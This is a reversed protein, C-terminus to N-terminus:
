SEQSSRVSGPGLDRYQPQDDDLVPVDLLLGTHGGVVFYVESLSGAPANVDSFIVIQNGPTGIQTLGARARVTTATQHAGDVVSVDVTRNTQNVLSVVLNADRSDTILVANAVYVDGVQGSVGDSTEGNTLTSQPVWLDCSTLLLPLLSGCIVVAAARLRKM